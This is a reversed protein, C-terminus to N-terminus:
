TKFGLGRQGKVAEDGCPLLLQPPLGFHTLRGGSRGGGAQECGSANESLRRRLDARLTHGRRQWCLESRKWWRTQIRTTSFRSRIVSEQAAISSGIRPRSM